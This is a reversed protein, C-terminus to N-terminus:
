PPILARILYPFVLAIVILVAATWLGIQAIRDARDTACYGEACAIKAKRRLRWAGWGIFGLSVAAFIPQYPELATLNGIWAGSVGLAFLLFPIVCCSAAGIAAVIGALSLLRTAPQAASRDSAAPM